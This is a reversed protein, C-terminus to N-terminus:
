GKRKYPSLDTKPGCVYGGGLLPDCVLGMWSRSPVEGVLCDPYGFATTDDSSGSPPPCKGPPILIVTEISLDTAPDTDQAAAPVALMTTLALVICLSKMTKSGNNIRLFRSTRSLFRFYGEMLKVPFNEDPCPKGTAQAVWEDVTQSNCPWHCGVFKLALGDAFMEREDTDFGLRCRRLIGFERVLRQVQTETFQLSWRERCEEKIQRVIRRALPKM